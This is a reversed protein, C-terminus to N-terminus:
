PLWVAAPLCVAAMCCGYLLWVAATCCGYLLRVATMCYSYLLWAAAPLAYLLRVAATCCGCLLLCDYLLQVAAM